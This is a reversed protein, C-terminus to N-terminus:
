HHVHTMGDSRWLSAKYICRSLGVEGKNPHVGVILAYLLSKTKMVLYQLDFGVYQLLLPILLSSPLPTGAVDADTTTAPPPTATTVNEVTGYRPIRVIL